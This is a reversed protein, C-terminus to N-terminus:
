RRSAATRCRATVRAEVAPDAARQGEAQERDEPRDVAAEAARRRRRGLGIEGRLGPAAPADGRQRRQGRREAEPVIMPGATAGNNTSGSTPSAPGSNAKAAIASATTTTSRGRAAWRGRRACPRAHRPSSSDRARWGASRRWRRRRSGAAGGAAASAPVVRADARPDDGPTTAPWAWAAVRVQRPKKTMSRSCRVGHPESPGITSRSSPRRPPSARRAIPGSGAARARGASASGTPRASRRPRGPRSSATRVVEVPDRDAERDGREPEAEGPGAEGGARREGHRQGLLARDGADDGDALPM